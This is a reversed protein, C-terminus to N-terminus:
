SQHPGTVNSAEAVMEVASSHMWGSYHHNYLEYCPASTTTGDAETRVIDVEYGTVAMVKGRFRKIIEGPLAVPQSHWLVRSYETSAEPGLLEFYKGRYTVVTGKGPPANAIHYPNPNMHGATVLTTLCCGALLMKKPRHATRPFGKRSRYLKRSFHDEALITVFKMFIRPFAIFHQDSSEFYVICRCLSCFACFYLCLTVNAGRCRRKAGDKRTAISQHFSIRCSSIEWEPFRHHTKRSDLTKKRMRGRFTSCACLFMCDATYGFATLSKEAKGEQERAVRKKMWDPLVIDPCRM